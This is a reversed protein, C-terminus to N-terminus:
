IAFTQSTSSTYSSYASMMKEYVIIRHLMWRGYDGCNCTLLGGLPVLLCRVDLPIRLTWGSSILFTVAVLKGDVLKCFGQWLFRQCLRFTTLLTFISVVVEGVQLDCSQDFVGGTSCLLGDPLGM